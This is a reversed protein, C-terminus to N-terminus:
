TRQVLDLGVLVRASNSMDGIVRREPLPFRKVCTPAAIIQEDGALVPREYLNIVELEYAGALHEDCLARINAVARTSRATMGAVFLRLVYVSRPGHAADDRLTEPTKSSAM